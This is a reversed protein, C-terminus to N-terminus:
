CPNDRSFELFNISTHLLLGPGIMVFIHWLQHSSFWIDVKGILWREPIRLQWVIFGCSFILYTIVIRWFFLQVIKSSFGLIIAWHILPIIGFATFLVFLLLRLPYGCSNPVVIILWLLLGFFLPFLAYFIRLYPFCYFGFYCSASTMGAIGLAIAGMDLKLMLDYTEQSHCKFIHYLASSFYILIVTLTSIGFILKTLWIDDYIIFIM